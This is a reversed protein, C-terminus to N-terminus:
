ALSVGEYTIILVRQVPPLLLSTEGLLDNLQRAGPPREGCSKCQGVMTEM